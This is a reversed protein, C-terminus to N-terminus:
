QKMMNKIIKEARDVSDLFAIRLELPNEKNGPWTCGLRRNRGKGCGFSAVKLCFCTVYPLVFADSINRDQTAQLSCFLYATKAIQITLAQESLSLAHPFCPITGAPSSRADHIDSVYYHILVLVSLSVLFQPLDYQEGFSSSLLCWILWLCTGM